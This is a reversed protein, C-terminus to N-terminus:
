SSIANVCNEPDDGATGKVKQGWFRILADIFGFVDMVLVPHFERWRNKLYPTSSTRLPVCLSVWLCVCEFVSHMQCRQLRPLPMFVSFRFVFFLVSTLVSLLSPWDEKLLTTSPWRLLTPLVCTMLSSQRLYAPFYRVSRVCRCVCWWWM